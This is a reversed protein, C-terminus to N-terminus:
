TSGFLHLGIRGMSYGGHSKAPISSAQAYVSIGRKSSTDLRRFTELLFVAYFVYPPTLGRLNDLLPSSRSAGVMSPGRSPTEPIPLFM